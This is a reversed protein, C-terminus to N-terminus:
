DQSKLIRPFLGLLSIYQINKERVITKMCFFFLYILIKLRFNSVHDFVYLRSLVLNKLRRIRLEYTQGRERLASSHILVADLIFIKPYRKAYDIFFKTDIGYFSLREDFRLGADFVQRHIITGSMMAVLDKSDKSGVKLHENSIQKGRVGQVMGPSILDRKFLIRPIGVPIGSSFFGFLSCIYAETIESDDDLVIFYQSGESDAVIKNYVVSLRENRGNHYYNVDGNIDPIADKGFGEASNDWISLSQTIRFKSFDILGLSKLTVTLAPPTAYVVVIFNIKVQEGDYITM